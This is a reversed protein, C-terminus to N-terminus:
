PTIGPAVAVNLGDFAVRWVKPGAAVTLNIPRGAGDAGIPEPAGGAAGELRMGSPLDHRAGLASVNSPVWDRKAGDWNVFAYGRADWKLALPRQTIMTEDAALRVREGLRRAEIEASVGRGAFGLGLVAVGSMVGIIALVVMMEMLTLGAEDGWSM